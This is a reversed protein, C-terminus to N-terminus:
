VGSEREPCVLTETSGFGGVARLIRSLVRPLCCRTVCAYEFAARSRADVRLRLLGGRSNAFSVPAELINDNRKSFYHIFISSCSERTLRLVALLLVSSRTQILASFYSWLSQWRLAFPHPLSGCQERAVVGDLRTHVRKSTLEVDRNRSLEESTARKVAAKAPEL